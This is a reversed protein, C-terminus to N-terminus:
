KFPAVHRGIHAEVTAYHEDENDILAGLLRNRFRYATGDKITLVSGYTVHLVQRGDFLDLVGALEGDALGDPHPVVAPDASVHYTAKDEDWRTLAFALIERFLGPDVGAVARLAELYSTGATKVHVLDGAIRAAIPYIAFKDSGSHFSIKYPGLARAIAVHESLAAGFAAADGKYDVGKEFEGVFRPALSTWEVGLRRLEKAVFYHECASTPTATEDVSVELEFPTGNMVSSLHRYMAATHAVAAGYKAAARAFTEEDFSLAVDGGLDFTKGVYDSRATALTTELDSWPLKELKVEADAASASDAEDDVHDGPDITFMTFGCAATADIDEATKLHDADSGFGSLYGEQFAGWVADAMVAEPTRHTRTMERISQQALVPFMGSNPLARIHGPTALGLRDGCGFSKRVGVVAPAYGPVWQGLWKANGFSREGILVNFQEGAVTLSKGTGEFGEPLKATATRIVGVYRDRKQAGLFGLAGRCAIISQPYIKMNLPPALAGAVVGASDGLPVAQTVSNLMDTFQGM